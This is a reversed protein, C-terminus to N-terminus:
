LVSSCLTNAAANEQPYSSLWPLASALRPLAAEAAAYGTEVLRRGERFKRIGFGATDDFTPEIVIGARAASDAAIKGQMLNFTATLADLMGVTEPTGRETRRTRTLKVGIVVDAGMRAVVDTPVPDLVGGDVLLYTGMRHPPFVGPIATSARLAEWLVGNRLVVLRQSLLDTATVGLPLGLEEILTREGILDKLARTM